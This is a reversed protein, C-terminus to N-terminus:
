DASDFYDDYTQHDERFRRGCEESCFVFQRGWRRVAVPLSDTERGCGQCYVSAFHSYPRSTTAMM